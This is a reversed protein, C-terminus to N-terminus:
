LIDPVDVKIKINEVAPGINFYDKISEIDKSIIDFRSYVMARNEPTDIFYMHSFPAIMDRKYDSFCEEFSTYDTIYKM